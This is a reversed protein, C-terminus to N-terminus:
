SVPSGLNQIAKGATDDQIEVVKRAMEYARGVTIMSVMERLTSVNSGELARHVLAQGEIVQAADGEAPAMLGDGIRTMENPRNFRFPALRGIQLTGQLILGQPNLQITGGEQRFQLPGNDGDVQYGQQTVLSFDPSLRFNGNRTYGVTGDPKRVRFFGDGEIAFHTDVGTAGIQGPTHNMTVKLEPVFGKLTKSVDGKDDKLKSVDEAISQFSPENRRYGDVSVSALNQSIVEQWREFAQM